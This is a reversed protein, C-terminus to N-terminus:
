DKRGSNVKKGTEAEYVWAGEAHSPVIDSIHFLASPLHRKAIERAKSLSGATTFQVVFYVLIILFMVCLANRNEYGGLM